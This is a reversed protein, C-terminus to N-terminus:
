SRTTARPSLRQGGPPSLIPLAKKNASGGGIPCPLRSKGTIRLPKSYTLGLLGFQSASSVHVIVGSPLELKLSADTRPAGFEAIIFQQTDDSQDSKFHAGGAASRNAKGIWSAFTPYKVGCHEAFAAASMGSQEYVRIVEEKYSKTYRTRGVRDSKVLAGSTTEQISTM